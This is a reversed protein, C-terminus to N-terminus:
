PRPLSSRQADRAVSSRPKSNSGVFVGLYTEVQERGSLRAALTLRDGQNQDNKSSTQCVAAVAPWESPPLIPSNVVEQEVQALTMAPDVGLTISLAALAENKGGSRDIWQRIMDGKAIASRVVERFTQDAGATMAVALARGIPSDPGEAGQLLVDLTLKELLQTREADDLVAFRAAVNAEFPFQHLLQTCFAHITQVKLGGPTELTRAFLRRALTRTAANTAIGSGSIAKDLAHDDLKTWKGLTDFVRKAMNAAAAKTFTICLIKEPEVGKLLLNIVRQALVHTKGSGANAAVWASTEPDSAERQLQTVRTPIDDPTRM